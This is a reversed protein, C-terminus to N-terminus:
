KRDDKDAKEIFLEVIFKALPQVVLRNRFAYFAALALVLGGGVCTFGLPLNDTVSGIYYALAFTFYLLALAALVLMVVVIATAALLVTLKEATSVMLLKKQLGIYKKLELFIKKISEINKESAFM